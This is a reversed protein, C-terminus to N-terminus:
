HIRGKAVLAAKICIYILHWVRQANWLMRFDIIYIYIYICVYMCVYMCVYVHIYTHIYTYMCVYMRVCVCVCVYNTGFAHTNWLM